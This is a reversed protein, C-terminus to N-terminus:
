RSIAWDAVSAVSAAMAMFPASMTVLLPKGCSSAMKTLSRARLPTFAWSTIPLLPVDMAENAM